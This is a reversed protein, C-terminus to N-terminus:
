NEKLQIMSNRALTAVSVEKFDGDIYLTFSADTRTLPMLFEIMDPQDCMGLCWSALGRVIKDPSDLYSKIDKSIGRRLMSKKRSMLLRGIGWLLGQQLAPLELYNGDQLIESGDGRMYSILMHVYESFLIENQVMIEAMAEPAGWGIGGSEDNLSWLFRRMVIRATEIDKDAMRSVVVGFSSVAHWRCMENTSYLASFLPNIIENDKYEWLHGTIEKWKRVTLLQLIIKKHKRAGM